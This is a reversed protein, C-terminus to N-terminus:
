NQPTFGEADIAMRSTAQQWWPIPQNTLSVPATNGM